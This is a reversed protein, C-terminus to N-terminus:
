YTYVYKKNGWIERELDKNRKFGSAEHSKISHINNKEIVSVLERIGFKRKVLDASKKLLGLGRFEPHIAIQFYHRNKKKIFGTVGAVKGNLGINFLKTDNDSLLEDPLRFNNSMPIRRYNNIDFDTLIIGNNRRKLLYNNLLQNM